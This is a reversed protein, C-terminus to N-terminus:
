HCCGSGHSEVKMKKGEKKCCDPKDCGEPSCSGSCGGEGCSGSGGGGSGSESGCAGSGCSGSEAESGCAGSGCCDGEMAKADVDNIGVVKVEFTLDKGALPHNMDLTVSDKAVKIVKVPLHQGQPGQMMLMMGEKVEVDTPFAKKPVEKNLKAHVPGYADKVELTFKKSEGKKMGTVAKDFGPIVQGSGVEFHLPERGESSDFTSGDQLTGTYHLSVTDGKKVADSKM